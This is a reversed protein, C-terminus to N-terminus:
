DTNGNDSTRDDKQINEPILSLIFILRAETTNFIELGKGPIFVKDNGSSLDSIIIGCEDHAVRTVYGRDRLAEQLIM